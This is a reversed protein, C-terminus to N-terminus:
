HNKIIEKNIPDRIKASSLRTHTTLMGSTQPAPTLCGVAHLDTSKTKYKVWWWKDLLLLQTSMSIFNSYEHRLGAVINMQTSSSVPQPAHLLGLAARRESFWWLLPIQLSRSLLSQRASLTSTLLVNLRAAGISCLPLCIIMVLASLTGFISVVSFPPQLLYLHHKLKLVAESM